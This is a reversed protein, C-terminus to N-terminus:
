RVVLIRRAHQQRPGSGFQRTVGPAEGDEDPLQANLSYM